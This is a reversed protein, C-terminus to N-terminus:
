DMRMRAAEVEESDKSIAGDAGFCLCSVACSANHLRRPAEIAGICAQRSVAIHPLKLFGHVIREDQKRFHQDYEANMKKLQEVVM